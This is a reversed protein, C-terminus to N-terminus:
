CVCVCVCVCVCLYVFCQVIECWSLEVFGKLIKIAHLLYMFTNKTSGVIFIVVTVIHELLFYVQAYAQQTLFQTQPQPVLPGHPVQPGQSRDQPAPVFQHQGTFQGGGM